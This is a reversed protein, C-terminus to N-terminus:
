RLRTYVGFVAAAIAMLLYIAQDLLVSELSLGFEEGIPALPGLQALWLWTEGVFGIVIGLALGGIVSAMVVPGRKYGTIRASGESALIGSIYGVILTAIVFEVRSSIFGGVIGLGLAAAFTLLAQVPSVAQLPDRAPTGCQRCRFGVPGQMACATCIPQDCRGCRIYTERTPHRYCFLRGDDAGLGESATVGESTVRPLIRSRAAGTL